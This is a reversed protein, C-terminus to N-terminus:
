ERDNTSLLCPAERPFEPDVCGRPSDDRLGFLEPRLREDALLTHELSSAPAVSVKVYWGDVSKVYGITLSLLFLFRQHQVM